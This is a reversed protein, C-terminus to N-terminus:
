KQRPALKTFVNGFDPTERNSQNTIIKGEVTAGEEIVIVGATINGFVMADPRLHVRGSATVDGQLKGAMVVSEATITGKIVAKPGVTLAGDSELTGEFRGNLELEGSFALEGKVEVDETIIPRTAGGVAAYADQHTVPQPASEGPFRNGVLSGLGFSKTEAAM